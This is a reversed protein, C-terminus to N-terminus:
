FAAGFRLLGLHFAQIGTRYQYVAEILLGHGGTGLTVGGSGELYLGWASTSGATAAYVQYNIGGSVGAQLLPLPKIIISGGGGHNQYGLVLPTRGMDIDLTWASDIVAGVKLFIPLDAYMGLHVGGRELLDLMVNMTTFFPSNISQSALPPSILIPIQYSLETVLGMARAPSTVLAIGFAIIGVGRQLARAM